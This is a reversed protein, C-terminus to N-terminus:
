LPPNMKPAHGLAALMIARIEGWEQLAARFDAELGREGHANLQYAIQNLNNGYRGLQALAERMLQADIPLRRQARPGADGIAAARVYAALSLGAARAKGSATNFEDELLRVKLQKQRQRNESSKHPKRADTKEDNM